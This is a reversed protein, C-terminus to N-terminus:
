PVTVEAGTKEVDDGDVDIDTSFTKNGFAGVSEGKLDESVTCTFDMNGTLLVFEGKDLPRNKQIRSIWTDSITGKPLGLTQHRTDMIIQYVLRVLEDYLADCNNASESM